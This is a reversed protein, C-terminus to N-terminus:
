IPQGFSVKGDSLHYYAPVMPTRELYPTGARLKAITAAVHAHTARDVLAALDDGTGDAVVEAISPRVLDVVAGVHAPPPEASGQLQNVTATVAGCNEHGLVILLPVEFALVAFELSGMVADDVVQGAVRVVFLDGLGQDFVREPPVRSDACGLVGAIPHPAVATAVRRTASGDERARTREKVFRANGEKLRALAEEATILAIEM